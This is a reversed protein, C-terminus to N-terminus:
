SVERTWSAAASPDQFFRPDNTIEMSDSKSLVGGSSLRPFLHFFNVPVIMGNKSLPMVPHSVMWGALSPWVVINLM